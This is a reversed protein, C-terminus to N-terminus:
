LSEVENLRLLQAKLRVIAILLTRNKTAKYLKKMKKLSSVLTDRTLRQLAKQFFDLLDLYDAVSLNAYLYDSNDNDGYTTGKEVLLCNLLHKKDGIRLLTQFDMYQATTIKTIDFVPEFIRNGITYSSKPKSVKYPTNLFSLQNVVTNAELVPLNALDKDFLIKVLGETILIPESESNLLDLINFYKDVTLDKYTM